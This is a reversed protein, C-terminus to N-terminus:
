SFILLCVLNKEIKPTLIEETVEIKPIKPNLIITCISIVMSTIAISQEENGWFKAIIQMMLSPKSSHSVSQFLIKYCEGVVELAKWNAIENPTATTDIHPLQMKAMLVSFM